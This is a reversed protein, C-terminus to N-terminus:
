YKYNTTFIDYFETLDLYTLRLHRVLCRSPSLYYLQVVSSVHPNEKKLRCNCSSYLQVFYSTLTSFPGWGAWWMVLLPSSARLPFLTSRRRKFFLSGKTLLQRLSDEKCKVGGIFLRWMLLERIKKRFLM